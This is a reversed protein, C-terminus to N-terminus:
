GLKMFKDQKLSFAGAGAYSGRLRWGGHGVSPVRTNCTLQPVISRLISYQRQACVDEPTSDPKIRIGDFLFRISTRDISKRECYSDMLQLRPSVNSTTRFLEEECAVPAHLM